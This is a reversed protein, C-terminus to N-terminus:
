SEMVNNPDDYTVLFIEETVRAGVDEVFQEPDVLKLIGLKRRVEVSLSADTHESVESTTKMIYGHQVKVILCSKRTGLAAVAKSITMMDLKAKQMKHLEDLEKLDLSHEFLHLHAEIFADISQQLSSKAVRARYAADRYGNESISHAKEFAYNMREEKTKAYFNKKITRIAVNLDKTKIGDGRVKAKSIRENNICVLNDRRGTKSYRWESSISGIHTGDADYIQAAGIYAMVKDDNARDDIHALHTCKITWEPFKAQVEALVQGIFETQPIYEVTKNDHRDVCRALSDSQAKSLKVSVRSSPIQISM